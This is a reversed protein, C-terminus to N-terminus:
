LINDTVGNDIIHMVEEGLDFTNKGEYMEKTIPKHILVHVKTRHILPSHKSLQSSGVISVPSITAGPKMALKFSGAKFGIMTEIERSKIGGEPFILMNYGSEVQKMAKILDKVGQRDDRRNLPVVKFWDMISHLLPIKYLDDKAVASMIRKYVVYLILVDLDSKHNSYVVFTENPINELGEVELKIHFLYRTIFDLVVWALRHKFKNNYPLLKFILLIILALPILALIGTLAGLFLYLFWYWASGLALLSYAYSTLGFVILMYIIILM